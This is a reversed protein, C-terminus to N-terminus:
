DTSSDGGADANAGCPIPAGVDPKYQPPVSGWDTCNNIFPVYVGCYGTSPCCGQLTYGMVTYDPCNPDTADPPVNVDLGGELYKQIDSQSVCGLGIAAGDYGCTDDPLCCGPAIGQFGPCNAAVCKKSADGGDKGGGGDGAVGGTGGTSSEAAGDHGGTGATGGTHSNNGTESSGGCAPSLWAGVLVLSVAALIRQKKM